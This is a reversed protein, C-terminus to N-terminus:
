NCHIDYRNDNPPQNFKMIATVQNNAICTSQPTEGLAWCFSAFMVDKM